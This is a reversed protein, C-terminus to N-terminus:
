LVTYKVNKFTGTITYQQLGDFDGVKATFTGSVTRSGPNCATITISADTNGDFVSSYVDSGLIYTILGGDCLTVGENDGTLALCDALPNEEDTEGFDFTADYEGELIGNDPPNHFDWNSVAVSMMKTLGTAATIYLARGEHDYQIESQLMGSITQVNQSEGDVTYTFSPGVEDDGCFTFIFTVALLLLRAVLRQIKTTMNKM